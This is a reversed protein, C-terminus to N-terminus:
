KKLKRATLNNWRNLEFNLCVNRDPIVLFYNRKGFSDLLTKVRKISKLYKPILARLLLKQFYNIISYFLIKIRKIEKLLTPWILIFNVGMQPKWASETRNKIFFYTNRSTITLQRIYIKERAKGFNLQFEYLISITQVWTLTYCAVWKWKLHSSDM